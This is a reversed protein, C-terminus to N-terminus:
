RSSSDSSSASSSDSDSDSSAESSSDSDSDSDSDVDMPEPADKPKSAGNKQWKEFEVLKSAADKLGQQELFAQVSDLPAKIDAVSQSDRATPKTTNKSKKDGSSAKSVKKDSAM